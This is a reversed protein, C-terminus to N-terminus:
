CATGTPCPVGFLVACCLVCVLAACMQCVATVARVPPLVCLMCTVLPSVLGGTCTDGVAATAQRCAALSTSPRRSHYGGASGGAVARVELLSAAVCGVVGKSVVCRHCLVVCRAACWSGGSHCVVCFVCGVGLVGLRWGVTSCVHLSSSHLLAAVSCPLPGWCVVTTRATSRIGGAVSPANSWRVCDGLDGSEGSVGWCVPTPHCGHTVCRSWRLVVAVLVFCRPVVPFVVCSQPPPLTSPRSRCEGGHTSSNSLM